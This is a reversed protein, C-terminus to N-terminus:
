QWSNLSETASLLDIANEIRAHATARLVAASDGVLARLLHPVFVLEIFKAAVDWANKLEADDDAHRAAIAAAVRGVGVEWGIRDVHRALEPMKPAVAIIARMLAVADPQLSHELLSSGVAMLRDRLPLDRNVHSAPALGQGVARRIVAAFLAEKDAYRAYLSAKGARALAVIQDCSTAEFGRELFLRKAADLIRDDVESAQSRPPRGGRGRRRADPLPSSGSKITKGIPFEEDRGDSKSVSRHRETLELKGRDRNSTISSHNLGFARRVGFNENKGSARAIKAAPNGRRETTSPDLIARDNSRARRRRDTRAEFRAARREDFRIVGIGGRQSACTIPRRADDGGEVAELGHHDAHL